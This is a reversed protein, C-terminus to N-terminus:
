RRPPTVAVAVGALMMLGGAVEGSVLTFAFAAPFLAALLAKYGTTMPPNLFVTFGVTTAPLHRLLWTWLAFGFVTCLLVIYAMVALGGLDLRMLEPGGSFPLVPVLPVAGVVLALYTFLLPSVRGSVPKTLVTHVAWSLPALATIAIRLPYAFGEESDKSTAVLVLGTVAVLFGIARRRTIREALFLASLAMVFLPILTTLLSAIPAPVDHQIGAYLTLNYVPAILLGSVVLRPWHARLIARSEARRFLLCYLGCIAGTPVFRATTLSLWDFRAEGTEPALLSEFAIFSASWITFLLFVAGALVAPGRFLGGRAPTSPGTSRPAM